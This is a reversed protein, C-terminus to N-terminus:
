KVKQGLKYVGSEIIKGEENWKKYSGNFIKDEGAFEINGLETYFIEHSEKIRKLDEDYFNETKFIIGNKYYLKTTSFAVVGNFKIKEKTKNNQVYSIIVTKHDINLTDIFKDKPLFKSKQTSVKPIETDIGNEILRVIENKQNYIESTTEFGNVIKLKTRLNLENDEIILNGTFPKLNNKYFYATKQEVISPFKNEGSQSYSIGSILLYFTIILNRM